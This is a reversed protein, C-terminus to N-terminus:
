KERVEGREDGLLETVSEVRLEGDISLSHSPAGLISPPPPSPSSSPSLSTSPGYNGEEDGVMMEWGEIVDDKTKQKAHHRFFLTCMWEQNSAGDPLMVDALMDDHSSSSPLPPYSFILTSGKNIDFEALHLSCVNMISVSLHSLSLLSYLSLSFHIQGTISNLKFKAEFIKLNLFIQNEGKM